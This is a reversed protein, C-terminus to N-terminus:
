PERRARVCVLMPFAPDDQELLSPDVEELALGQVFCTAAYANGHLSVELNANAFAEGFLREATRDTISWYWKGDSEAPDVTTVGPMTLLLVGGPKLAQALNDVAARIDYVLQLTQTIIMCDFAGAPLTGPQAIDGVITAGPHGPVIHLVDQRENAKGFRRSYSDDGVELVRGRIDDAHRALFREIYWRDVPTGRDLGFRRGVPEAQALDGFDVGGIRIKGPLVLHKLTRFARPSLARRLIAGGASVISALPAKGALRWRGGARGAGRWAANAYVLKWRRRGARFAARAARDSAVPAHRGQVKLAWELMEGPDASMNEGHIRYDAVVASHSAVPYARALRFYADYDECRRLGADFGGAAALKARDFMVTGCSGIVNGRLLAEYPSPGCPTYLPPGIPALAADVRRHAGYVMGCGPNAAHCALGLELARPALRDDADLFVVYDTAAAKLGRNRAAALGANDQRVLEVGFAEAVAAPDDHSGDDIVIVQDPPASQQAVSELADPLFHAHDYTTIVVAVTPSEDSKRM